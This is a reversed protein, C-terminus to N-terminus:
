GWWLGLRRKVWWWPKAALVGQLTMELFFVVWWKYRGLFGERWPRSILRCRDIYLWGKWWLRRGWPGRQHKCWGRDRRFCAWGWVTLFWWIVGKSGMLAKSHIGRWSYSCWVIHLLYKRRISWHLEFVAFRARQIAGKNWLFLVWFM